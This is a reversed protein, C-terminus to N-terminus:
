RSGPSSRTPRGSGPRADSEQRAIAERMEAAFKVASPAAREIRDVLDRQGRYAGAALLTEPRGTASEHAARVLDRLLRATPTSLFVFAATFLSEFSPSQEAYDNRRDRDTRLIARLEDLMRAAATDLSTPDTGLAAVAAGLGKMYVELRERNGGAVRPAYSEFEVPTVDQGSALVARLTDGQRQYWAIREWLEFELGCLRARLVARGPEPPGGPEPGSGASALAVSLPAMPRRMGEVAMVADQAQEIGAKVNLTGFTSEQIHERQKRVLIATHSILEARVREM